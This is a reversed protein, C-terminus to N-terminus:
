NKNTLRDFLQLIRYSSQGDLNGWRHMVSQQKQAAWNYFSSDKMLKLLIARFEDKEEIRLVGPADEYDKYRLRYVDYNVVPIGCAIAWRITASASAVYVDSLPILAATDRQSIKIGWQEIYKMKEYRLRPHIRVVVNCEPVATLSEIWFRVLHPFDSFDTQSKQFAFQDPPLACLILPYDPKLGLESYLKSREEKSHHLKDALIDDSVSGTMVFREFPIRERQYHLMMMQSEVAIADIDGSNSVWPLPPSLKLLEKSLAQPAPLRVLSRGRHTFVWKPWFRRLLRNSWQQVSCAPNHYLSEAPETANSVTFPVVAVPVNGRRSAKIWAATNYAVNDEALVILHCKQKEMLRKASTIERVDHWLWFPFSYLRDLFFVHLVNYLFLGMSRSGTNLFHWIRQQVNLLFSIGIQGKKRTPGRRYEPPVPVFFRGSRNLCGIGEETCTVLEEETPLCTWLFIPIYRGSKKLSLAVKRLEVFHSHISIVLFVRKM